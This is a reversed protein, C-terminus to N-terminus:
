IIYIACRRSVDKYFDMFESTFLRRLLVAAMQRAEESQQGNHLNGLLHTVKLERSLNNYTDQLFSFSLYPISGTGKWVTSIMNGRIIIGHKILKRWRGKVGQQKNKCHINTTFEACYMYNFACVCVCSRTNYIFATCPLAHYRTPPPEGLDITTETRTSIAFKRYLYMYVRCVYVLLISASPFRCKWM